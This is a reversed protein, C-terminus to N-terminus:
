EASSLKKTQEEAARREKAKAVDVGARAAAEELKVVKPEDVAAAKSLEEVVKANARIVSGYRRYSSKAEKLSALQPKTFFRATETVVDWRWLAQAATDEFVPTNKDKIGYSERSGMTEIEDELCAADNLLANLGQTATSRYLEVLESAPEESAAFAEAVIEVARGLRASVSVSLKSLPDSSGVMTRAIIKKIAMELRFCPDEYVEPEAAAKAPSEVDGAPAPADVDAADASVPADEPASKNDEDAGADAAVAAATAAAAYADATRIMDLLEASAAGAEADNDFLDGSSEEQLLDEVAREIKANCIQIKSQVEEPLDEFAVVVEKRAKKHSSPRSASGASARPAATAGEDGACYEAAIDAEIDMAAAAEAASKKSSAKRKRPAPVADSGVGVSEGLAAAAEDGEEAVADADTSSAEVDAVVAEAVAADLERKMDAVEAAKAAAAKKTVRRAAPKKAASAPKPAVPQRVRKKSPKGGKGSDGRDYDNDNDDDEGDEGDAAADEEGASVSASVGVSLPSGSNDINSVLRNVSEDGEEDQPSQV